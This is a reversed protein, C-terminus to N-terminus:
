NKMLKAVDVKNSTSVRLYYVGAPLNGFVSNMHLIRNFPSLLRSSQYILSGNMNSVSFSVQEITDLNLVVSVDSVFPNPNVSSILKNGQADPPNVSTLLWSAELFNPIGWGMFNDPNSANSASGKIAEQIEMVKMEPFAQWLCTVMGTMIPSSFSTGFGGGVNIGQSGQAITAGAGCAMVAPKIRGDATPGISSFSVRSDNLWVAGISFVSDADAPAGNWPFNSDGSNGASNCVFIGKAAAIDAAQSSTATNGDLDEYFHNWEPMDFDAYSLSSNIVDVGVSDAYEAGSLWNFEEIYNESNVDETRLLWYSAKPATGIMEGPSNAAMCSLVAKGHYHERYVDGGPNVFDKTGLIQGNARLSDFVPHLDADEFGSDLVGIVMGQGQFGLNHITIGNLQEIQDYSAGYDLSSSGRSQAGSRASIKEAMQEEVEFFPKKSRTNSSTFGRTSAVYPLAEIQEILSPDTTYVTVGNFWRTANLLTVGVDAVGQLYTTNVPIDKEDIAIGQNMRRDIARQSLFDEPHEITYPSDNKDTFQVYYKDPSIQASLSMAGLVFAVLLVNRIKM